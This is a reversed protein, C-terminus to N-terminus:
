GLVTGNKHTLAADRHRFYVGIFMGIPRDNVPKPVFNGIRNWTRIPNSLFTSAARFAPSLCGATRIAKQLLSECREVGINVPRRAIIAFSVREPVTRPFM